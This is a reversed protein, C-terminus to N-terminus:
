KCKTCKEVKDMFVSEGGRNRDNVIFTDKEKKKREKKRKKEKKKEKLHSANRNVRHNALQQTLLTREVSCAYDVQKERV